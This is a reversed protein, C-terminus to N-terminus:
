EALVKQYTERFDGTGIGETRAEYVISGRELISVRTALLLGRDIDHTTMLVSGGGGVFESLMDNLMECATEDLGTYPEDLLLLKPRHLLARGLSLRQKMGRSLERVTVGTKEELGLRELKTGVVARADRIGYLRAYFFLNEFATLDGYLLSDHSCYGISRRTSEDSKRLNKGFMTVKGEYTRILSAIINLLTSKGAGNRGFTTMFDGPKLTFSVSRLATLRGYRKSLCDSELIAAPTM